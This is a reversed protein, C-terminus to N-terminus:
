PIFRVIHPGLANAARLPLCRWIRPGWRYRPDDPSPTSTRRSLSYRYWCLPEDVGGWQSKFRHTGGGPSCRGFNFVRVGKAIARQMFSWYLLMNPALRNYRKLSSAWTMEFERAWAFGCGGAVPRDRLYACGFWVDDPFEEAIAEFFRLPQTPTGLDRMHRSFVAFFPEIQDLGFRMRVGEKEARRIQSRVKSRFRRWLLEPDPPLDLLVTIKRHSGTLGLDRRVGSRLELLDVRSQRALGVAHDALGRVAEPDGLPGGYNVFPMSVLYHGFVASKVRVLPLVGVLRGSQEEAALHICRHRFVREVVRRWGFLHFHTGGERERVFADWQAPDGRYAGIRLHPGGPHDTIMTM